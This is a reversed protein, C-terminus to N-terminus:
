CFNGHYFFCVFANNKWGLHIPKCKSFGECIIKWFICLACLFFFCVKYNKTAFSHIFSECLNFLVGECFRERSSLVFSGGAGLTKRGLHIVHLFNNGLFIVVKTNKDLIFSECFKFLSGFSHNKNKHKRSNTGFLHNACNLYVKV